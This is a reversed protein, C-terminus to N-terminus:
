REQINQTVAGHTTWNPYLERLYDMTAPLDDKLSAIELGTLGCEECRHHEKRTACEDCHFMMVRPSPVINRRRM